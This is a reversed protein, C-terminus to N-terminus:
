AYDWAFSEGTWEIDIPGDKHEPAWGTMHAENVGDGANIFELANCWTVVRLPHGETCHKGGPDHHEFDPCMAHEASVFGAYDCQSWSECYDRYPHRGPTDVEVLHCLAEGEDIAHCTITGEPDCDVVDGDDDVTHDCDSHDWTIVHDAM